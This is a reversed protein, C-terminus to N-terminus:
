VGLSRPVGRDWGRPIFEEVPETGVFEDYMEDLFVDVGDGMCRELGTVDDVLRFDHFTEKVSFRKHEAM